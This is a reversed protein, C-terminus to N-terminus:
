ESSHRVFADVRGPIHASFAHEQIERSELHRPSWCKFKNKWHKDGHMEKFIVQQRKKSECNFAQFCIEQQGNM